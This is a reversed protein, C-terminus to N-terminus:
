FGDVERKSFRNRCNCALLILSNPAVIVAESRTVSGVSSVSTSSFEEEVIRSEDGEADYWRDHMLDITSGAREVRSSLSILDNSTANLENVLESIIM